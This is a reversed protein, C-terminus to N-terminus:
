PHSYVEHDNCHNIKQMKQAPKPPIEAGTKEAQMKQLLRAREVAIEKRMQEDQELDFYLKGDVFTKEARTYVSLPNASWLVLDADKGVKISGVRHDIHLLKAPNLTVLKLADEESMGGYRIGKAAEQNLRRAMEPDDSNVATILGMSNLLSANHPVAEIVEYKYGWWDAFTSAGVGHKKMKDAVKYGELIHTFTNVKFGFSDAVHMLMNIEGQQYSHCTIFRKKNLIESLAELELDKRLVAPKENPKSSTSIKKMADYEKARQFADMFTQEVGMRTQPYRIVNRDGWNSQKVNEGLAFKIFPDAGEFKIQEAKSGWRLKIIQSQGGIANASGHLLQATTVGGSLQRYINIDEPDVVDGIRVEATVSQTGENVDGAIAIHSHEDIIGASLHKGTADIVLLGPIKKLEEDSLNGIRSVKGDVILVGTNVLIGEAENTWVTANKIFYSKKEPLQKFGYAMNPFSLEPLSPISKKSGTDAKEVFNGIKKLSWNVWVGDPMLAKGAISEKGTQGHMRVIGKAMSGAPLPFSLKLGDVSLQASVKVKSTDRFIQFEPQHKKGGISLKLGSETGLMLDYNGRIDEAIIEEEFCKEGMIWSEKLLADKSFYDDTFISFSAVMGTKLSGIKDSMKLWEAPRTTLAILVEDKSLGLEVMKLINKRFDEKKKLDFTTFCFAVKEKALYVANYPACEWHKLEKLTLSLGDYPDSVDYAEPFQLSIILKAQQLSYEKASLYEDGKGKLIFDKKYEKAIALARLGSLHDPVEFIVPLKEQENWAELQLNVEEKQQAYWQGDLYTQRLLAISGMQSSPYEQLSSGKDFSFCSFANKNLITKNEKKDSLMVLASTGRSIGDRRLVNVAGFGMKRYQDMKKADGKLERYASFDSKLAENWGHAGQNKNDYQVGKRDERKLIEPMGYDSFLDIFAPYIHMGKLDHIVADAPIVVGNGAAQIIGDKVVLVANSLVRGPEIHLTANSFVHTSHREDRPGNPIFTEQAGADPLRAFLFCLLGIIKKFTSNM